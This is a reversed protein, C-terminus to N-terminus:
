LPHEALQHFTIPERSVIFNQVDSVAHLKASMVGFNYLQNLREGSVVCKAENFLVAYRMGEPANIEWIYDNNKDVIPTCAPVGNKYLTNIIYLEEAYDNRSFRKAHSVRLYLIGIETLLIYVDNVGGSWLRCTEFRINYRSNLTILLAKPDLMSSQVPFYVMNM